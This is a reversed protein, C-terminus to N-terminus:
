GAKEEKSLLVEEQEAIWVCIGNRLKGEVIVEGENGTSPGFFPFDEEGIETLM